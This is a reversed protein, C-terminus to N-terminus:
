EPATPWNYYDIEALCADFVDPFTPWTFSGIDGAYTEPLDRLALRAAKAEQKKQGNLKLSPDSTYQWDTAHLAKNRKPRAWAWFMVEVRAPHDYAALAADAAAQEVGYITLQDGIVMPMESSGAHEAIFAM